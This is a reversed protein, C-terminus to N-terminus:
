VRRCGTLVRCCYYCTHRRPPTLTLYWTSSRTSKQITKLNLRFPICPTPSPARRAVHGHRYNGGVPAKIVVTRLPIRAPTPTHTCCFYWWGRSSCGPKVTLRRVRWAVVSYRPYFGFFFFTLRFTFVVEM